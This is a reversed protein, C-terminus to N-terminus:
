TLLLIELAGNLHPNKNRNPGVSWMFIDEAVTQFPQLINGATQLEDASLEM